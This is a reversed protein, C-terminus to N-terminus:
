MVKLLDNTKLLSLECTYGNLDFGFEHGDGKPDPYFGAKKYLRHLGEATSVVKLQMAKMEWSLALAHAEMLLLAALGLGQISSDIAFSCFYAAENSWAGTLDTQPRILSYSGIIRDGLELIRVSGHARRGSVNLLEQIRGPVLPVDPKNECTAQGFVKLLFGGLASDDRETAERTHVFHMIDRANTTKQRFIKLVEM